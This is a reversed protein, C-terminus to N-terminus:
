FIIPSFTLHLFKYVTDTDQEYLDEGEPSVGKHLLASFTQINRISIDHWTM